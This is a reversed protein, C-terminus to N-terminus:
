NRIRARIRMKTIAVGDQLDAKKEKKHSPRQVLRSCPQTFFWALKLSPEVQRQSGLALVLLTGLGTPVLSLSSSTQFNAESNQMMSGNLNDRGYHNGPIEGPVHQDKIKTSSPQRCFSMMSLM